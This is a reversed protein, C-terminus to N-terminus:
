AERCSILAISTGRPCAIELDNLMSDRYSGSMLGDVEELLCDSESRQLSAARFGRCDNSILPLRTEYDEGIKWYRATEAEGIRDVRFVVARWMEITPPESPRPWLGSASNQFFERPYHRRLRAGLVRLRRAHSLDGNWRKRHVAALNFGPARVCRPLKISARASIAVFLPEGRGKISGKRERWGSAPAIPRTEWVQRSGARVSRGYNIVCRGCPPIAFLARIMFLNSLFLYPCHM